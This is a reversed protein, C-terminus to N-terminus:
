NIFSWTLTVAAYDSVPESPDVEQREFEQSDALFLCKELRLLGSANM